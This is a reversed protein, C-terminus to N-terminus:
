YNKEIDQWGNNSSIEACDGIFVSGAEVDGRLHYLMWATMYSDTMVQMAGHEAGSVRARVKFVDNSIMNYNELPNIDIEFSKFGKEDAKTIEINELLPNATNLLLKKM